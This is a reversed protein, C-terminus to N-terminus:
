NEFRLLYQYGDVGIPEKEALLFRNAGETSGHKIISHYIPTCIRVKDRSLVNALKRLRNSGYVRHRNFLVSDPGVPVAILILADDSLCKRVIKLTDLDGDPDIPDGYRGLGSHEISSYSIFTDFPYKCKESSASDVFESFTMARWKSDLRSVDWDVMRYEVTTIDLIGRKMLYLELWPLSSGLVLVRRSSSFDVTELSPIAEEYHCWMSLQSFTVFNLQAQTLKPWRLPTKLGGGGSKYHMRKLFPVKFGDTFKSIQLGTLEEPEVIKIPMM